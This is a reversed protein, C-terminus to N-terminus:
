SVLSSLVERSSPDCLDRRHSVCCECCCVDMSGAPNSGAIEAFSSGIVWAKCQAAVPIPNVSVGAKRYFFEAPETDNECCEWYFRDRELNMWEAGYSETVKLSAKNDDALRCREKM